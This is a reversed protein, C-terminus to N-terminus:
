RGLNGRMGPWVRSGILRDRLQSAVSGVRVSGSQMHTVFTRNTGCELRALRITLCPPVLAGTCMIEYAGVRPYRRM